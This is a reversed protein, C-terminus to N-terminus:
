SQCARIIGIFEAATVSARGVLFGGAHGKKLLDYASTSDVAGGYIIRVKLATERGDHQNSRKLEMEAVEREIKGIEQMFCVRVIETAATVAEAVAPVPFYTFRCGGGTAKELATILAM